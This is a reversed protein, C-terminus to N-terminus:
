LAIEERRIILPAPTIGVLKQRMRMLGEPTAGSANPKRDDHIGPEFIRTEMIRIVAL